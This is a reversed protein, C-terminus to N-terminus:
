VVSPKEDNFMRLFREIDEERGEIHIEVASGGINKVYGKVGSKMAIRYIFPRFGVGQVIGSARINVAKLM